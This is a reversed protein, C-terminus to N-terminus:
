DLRALADRAMQLSRRAFDQLDNLIQQTRLTLAMLEDRLDETRSPDTSPDVPGAGVNSDLPHEREADDAAPDIEVPKAGIDIVEAEAAGPAGPQEVGDVQVPGAGPQALALADLQAQDLADLQASVPVTGPVLPTETVTLPPQGELPPAPAVDVPLDAIKADYESQSLVGADRLQALLDASTPEPM